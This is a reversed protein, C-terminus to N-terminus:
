VCLFSLILMLAVIKVVICSNCSINVYFGSPCLMFPYNKFVEVTCVKKYFEDFDDVMSSQYLWGLHGAGRRGRRPLTIMDFNLKWGVAKSTLKRRM